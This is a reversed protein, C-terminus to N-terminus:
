SHSRTFLVILRCTKTGVPVPEGATTPVGPLEPPTYARDACVACGGSSRFIAEVDPLGWRM